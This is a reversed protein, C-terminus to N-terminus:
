VYAENTTSTSGGAHTARDDRSHASRRSKGPRPNEDETPVPGLYFGGRKRRSDLGVDAGQPTRWISEGFNAVSSRCPRGTLREFPTKGDPGVKYRRYSATAYTVAWQTLPHDDPIPAGIREETALKITRVLGKVIGVGAEAAGNSQPDGVSSNEMVVEGTWATKLRQLFSALGPEPENDSRFIVRRYGMGELVELWHQTM